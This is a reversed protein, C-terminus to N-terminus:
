VFNNRVHLSAAYDTSKIIKVGDMSVPTQKEFFRASIIKMNLYDYKLRKVSEDLVIKGHDIIMARRCIKEIDGADHSTLFITTNYEKNIHLILERIKQKVM